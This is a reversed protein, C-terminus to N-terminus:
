HPASHLRAKVTASLTHPLHQTRFLICFVGTHAKLRWLELATWLRLSSYSGQPNHSHMGSTKSELPLYICISILKFKNATNKRKLVSWLNTKHLTSIFLHNLITSCIVAFPLGQCEGLLLSIQVLLLLGLHARCPESTLGNWCRGRPPSTIGEKLQLHIWAESRLQVARNWPEYFGAM